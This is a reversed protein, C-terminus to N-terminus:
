SKEGKCLSHAALLNAVVCVSRRRRGLQRRLAPRTAPLPPTPLGPPGSEAHWSAARSSATLLPAAASCRRSPRWLRHPRRCQSVGDEWPFRRTGLVEGLRLRIPRRRRRLRVDGVAPQRRLFVSPGQPWWCASPAAMPTRQRQTCCSQCVTERRAGSSLIVAGPLIWLLM